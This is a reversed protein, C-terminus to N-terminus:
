CCKIVTIFSKNVQWCLDKFQNQLKESPNENLGLVSDQLVYLIAHIPGLECCSTTFTVPNAFLDRIIWYFCVPKKGACVRTTM